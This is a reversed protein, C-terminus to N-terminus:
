SECKTILQFSGIYTRRPEPDHESCQQFNFLDSYFFHVKIGNMTETINHFCMELSSTSNTTRCITISNAYPSEKFRNCSFLDVCREDTLPQVPCLLDQETASDTREFPLALVLTKQGNVSESDSPVSICQPLASIIHDTLCVSIDETIM